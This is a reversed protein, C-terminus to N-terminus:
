GPAIRLIVFVTVPRATTPPTERRNINAPSTQHIGKNFIRDDKGNEKTNPYSYTERNCDTTLQNLDMTADLRETEAPRGGGLFVVLRFLLTLRYFSFSGM